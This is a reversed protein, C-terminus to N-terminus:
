RTRTGPPDTCPAKGKPPTNPALDAAARACSPHWTLWPRVAGGCLPCRRPEPPPTAVRTSATM